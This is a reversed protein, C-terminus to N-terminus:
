REKEKEKNEIEQKEDRNRLKNTKIITNKM